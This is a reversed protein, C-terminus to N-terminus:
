RKGKRGGPEESRLVLQEEVRKLTAKTDKVEALLEEDLQERTKQPRRIEQLRAPDYGRRDLWYHLIEERGTIDMVLDVWEIDFHIDHNEPNLARNLKNEATRVSCTPFLRCAIDKFGLGNVNAEIM